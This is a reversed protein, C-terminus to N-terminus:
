FQRPASVVRELAQKNMNSPLATHNDRCTRSRVSWTLTRPGDGLDLIFLRQKRGKRAKGSPPTQPRLYQNGRAQCLKCFRQPWCSTLVSVPVHDWSVIYSEKAIWEGLVTGVKAM